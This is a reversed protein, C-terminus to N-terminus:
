INDDSKRKILIIQAQIDRLAMTTCSTQAILQLIAKSQEVYTCNSYNDSWLQCKERVCNSLLVEATVQSALTIGKINAQVTRIHSGLIPCIKDISKTENM